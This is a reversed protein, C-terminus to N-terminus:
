QDARAFRSVVWDLTEGSVADKRTFYDHEYVIYKGGQTQQNNMTFEQLDLNMLSNEFDPDDRPPLASNELHKYLAKHNANLDSFAAPLIPYERFQYSESSNAM